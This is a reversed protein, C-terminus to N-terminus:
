PTTLWSLEAASAAVAFGERAKSLRAAALGLTARELEVFPV